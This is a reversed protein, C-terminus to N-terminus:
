LGRKESGIKMAKSASKPAFNPAKSRRFDRRLMKWVFVLFIVFILTEELNPGCQGHNEEGEPRTFESYFVISDGRSAWESRYFVINEHFKIFFFTFIHSKPSVKKAVKKPAMKPGIKSAKEPGM